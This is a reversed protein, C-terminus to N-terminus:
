WPSVSYWRYLWFTVEGDGVGINLLSSYRASDFFVLCFLFCM